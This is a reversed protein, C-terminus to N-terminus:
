QKESKLETTSEPQSGFEKKWYEAMEGPLCRWIDPLNNLYELLEEYLKMKSGDILYDPHTLLLVIGRNKLIWEIKSKWIGIDKAKLVYFMTHDQPLTYPLEVFKGAFFPWISGTGGPFPQYPDYDFCSADYEIDLAQLWELNRHVMPSRFGSAGYEKIAKNIFVSREM